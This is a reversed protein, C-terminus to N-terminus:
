KPRREITKFDALRGEGVWHAGCSNCTYRHPPQWLQFVNCGCDCRFPVGNVKFM